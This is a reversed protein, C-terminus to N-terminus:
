PPLCDFAKSLDMLIAGVYLNKDLAEKWDEVIRLLTTQCGYSTRFASLYSHFIENFHTTIQDGLLREYIKSLSPLISVPRYNKPIFPDDKKYIPTVQTKKLQSPFTEKNLMTNAINCIPLTLSPMAAKIIKPTISDVGTAKKPNPKKICTSVQKETIIKFEFNQKPNQEKIQKISPHDDNVQTNSNIGIHQAINIYFDNMYTKSNQGAHRFHAQDTVM